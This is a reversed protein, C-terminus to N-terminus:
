NSNNRTTFFTIVHFIRRLEEGIIMKHRKLDCTVAPLDGIGLMCIPCTTGGVLCSSSWNLGLKTYLEINCSSFLPLKGM